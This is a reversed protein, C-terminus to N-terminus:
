KQIIEVYDNNHCKVLTALFFWQCFDYVLGWLLGLMM